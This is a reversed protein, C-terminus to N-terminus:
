PTTAETASPVQSSVGRTHGDLAGSSRLQHTLLALLPLVRSLLVKTWAHLLATMLECSEWLLIRERSVVAHQQYAVLVHECLEDLLGLRTELQAACPPSGGLDLTSIGIDRLSARFRSLDVAPEARSRATLERLLPRAAAALATKQTTTPRM